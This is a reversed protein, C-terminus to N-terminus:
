YILGRSKVKSSDVRTPTVKGDVLSQSGIALNSIVKTMSKLDLSNIDDSAQHYHQDKDLQTSSFSHAPVGLRALTANDSRYFLKQEPYPDAYVQQNITSLQQNILEGLNSREFGTMWFTGPGFKSPKGIMEINLMAVVQAPDLQKSFYKSGYGGIEEATFAAFMLTRQNNGQENYYRALNMIATTGSADDDAGNYIKIEGSEDKIGLHDYHASFLVIENRTKDDTSKGPLVGVVNTLTQSNIQSTAKIDLQDISTQESLVMVLAAQHNFSLKTLGRGLYHHYRKFLDQHSPHVLVLADEGKLNLETLKSRLDDQEGIIVTNIQDANQWHFDTRTSAIIYNDKDLTQNNVSAQSKAVQIHHVNFSQLYSQESSLPSLGAQKFSDSIFNAAQDIEKSFSARGQLQDSALYTVDNVVQQSSISAAYSSAMLSYSLALILKKM